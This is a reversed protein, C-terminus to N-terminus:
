LTTHTNRAFRLLAFNARKIAEKLAEKSPKINAFIAELAEDNIARIQNKPIKPSAIKNDPGSLDDEAISLISYEKTTLLSSYQGTLGLPLYGTKKHWRRQIQPQALYSYFQAIGRYIENSQGAVVWFAGGGIVNNHRVTSIKTDLPMPAIGM